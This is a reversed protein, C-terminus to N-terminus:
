VYTLEGYFNYSVTTTPKNTAHTTGNYEPARPNVLDTLVQGEGTYVLLPDTDNIIAYLPM